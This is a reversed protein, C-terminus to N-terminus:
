NLVHFSLKVRTVNLKETNKRRKPILFEFFQLFYHIKKIQLTKIKETEKGLLILYWLYDDSNTSHYIM